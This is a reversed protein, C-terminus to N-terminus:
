RLSASSTTTLQADSEVRREDRHRDRVAMDQGKHAAAPRGMRDEAGILASILHASQLAPLAAGSLLDFGARTAQVEAEGEQRVARGKVDSFYALDSDAPDAFSLVTFSSTVAVRPTAFSLVQLRVWSRAGAALLHQLQEAMVGPTGITRRLVAEDLVLHVDTGGDLLQQRRKQLAALRKVQDTTLGPRSAALAAAAYGRTQVLGPIVDAAFARVESAASELGLFSGMGSPLLDNCNAWWDKLRGDTAMDEMLAREAPDDVGYIDLMVALYSRRTPAKGTEIRCVTSPAVDLRAAVDELRLSRSERLRRLESGLRRRRVAAGAQM